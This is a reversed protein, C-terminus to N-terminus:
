AARAQMILSAIVVIMWLTQTAVLLPFLRRGEPAYNAPNFLSLGGGPPWAFWPAGSEGGVQRELVRELRFVSARCLVVGALLFAAVAVPLILDM